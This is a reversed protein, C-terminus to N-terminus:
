KKIERDWWQVIEHTVSSTGRTSHWFSFGLYTQHWSTHNIHRPVKSIRMSALLFFHNKKIWLIKHVFNETLYIYIYKWQDHYNLYHILCLSFINWQRFVVEGHGLFASNQQVAKINPRSSMKTSCKIQPTLNSVVGAFHILVTIQAKLVVLFIYM